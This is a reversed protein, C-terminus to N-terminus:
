RWQSVGLAAAAALLVTALAALGLAAASLDRRSVTDTTLLPLNELRNVDAVAERLADANDVEYARYPVGLRQFYLHLAREPLSDVAEGEDVQAQLPPNGLSRLYLWYVAVRQRLAQQAIRDRADPDLHDGGDSILMLIRSGTYPRQDFYSLGELLASGIDTESLGRGVDAAAIAAQVAAQKDTFELTRLPVTSFAVLGFRDAARQGVFDSVAQRAMKGKSKFDEGLPRAYGLVKGGPMNTLPKGETVFPQDMSLSRDLMLVVEAGRGPRDVEYAPRYPGALGVVLGLMALSGLVKLARELQVSARDEPWLGLSSYRWPRIFGYRWPLLALPLLLLWLPEVWGLLHGTPNM